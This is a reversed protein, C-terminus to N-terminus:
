LVMHVNVEQVGLRARQYNLERIRREADPLVGDIVRTRDGDMRIRAADAGCFANIISRQNGDPQYICEPAQGTFLNGQGPLRCAEDTLYFDLSFPLDLMQGAVAQRGRAPLRDGLVVLPLRAGAQPGFAVLENQRIPTLARQDSTIVLLGNSFYDRAELARVFDALAQDAFRFAATENAVGSVPDIFPPHTTVTEVFAAVPQDAPRDDQLWSLVRGYLLDDSVAAFSYRKAGEYEPQDHGEIHDFGLSRLWDGKGLFGLDGSTIFASYYGDEALRRPLARWDGTYGDFVDLSRYRNVAPVPLQGALMAILGHDTTFGNALFQDWWVNEVALRDLNPTAQLSDSLLLSSHYWSLSEIAVIIVDGGLGLGASCNPTDLSAPPHAQLQELYAQSFETDAGSPWNAEILNQYTWPLPSAARDPLAYVLLSLGCMSLLGIRAAGTVLHRQTMRLVMWPLAVITVSLPLWLWWELQQLYDVIFQPQQGYTLVDPLYLRLGFQQLVMVDAILILLLAWLATTSFVKITRAQLSLLFLLLWIAAWIGAEHQVLTASQCGLCTDAGLASERIQVLRFLAIGLLLLQTVAIFVLAAANRTVPKQM